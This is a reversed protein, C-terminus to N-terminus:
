KEDSAASEWGLRGDLAARPIPFIFAPIPMSSRYLADEMGSGMKELLKDTAM